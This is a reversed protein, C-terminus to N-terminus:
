HEPNASAGIYVATLMTFIFAQLLAVLIEFATLVVLMVTPLPWIIALLSRQWLTASLVAFTVLLLHGALMNAFLRVMLSFPRVIFTSVFEIPTVLIYLAKPVGPPFISNTIYRIGQKKFGVVNYVVWVILALMAPIAMRASAPMQIFPIVEFINCVFVFSFISLLLPMWAEGGHGITQEVIGDHVFDVISEAFNQVGRPVLASKRGAILFLALPAICAAFTILVIKNIGGGLDKWEVLHSVPPFELKTLIAAPINPVM